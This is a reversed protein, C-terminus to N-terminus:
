ETDQAQAQEMLKMSHATEADTIASDFQFKRVKLANEFAQKQAKLQLTANQKQSKLALEAQTKQAEIQLEPDMQNEQEPTQDQAHQAIQDAVRALQDFSQKIAKFERIRQPNQSLRQLHMACHQGVANLAVWVEHPDAGNKVSAAAQSGFSIHEQLHLVDNQLPTLTIQGGEKLGANEVQAEWRQVAEYSRQPPQPLYRDVMDQGAQAAVLDRTLRIKGDEPLMGGLTAMIQNLMGIRM